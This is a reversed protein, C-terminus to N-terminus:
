DACGALERAPQRVAEVPVPRQPRLVTVAVAIAAIV